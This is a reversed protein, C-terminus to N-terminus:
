RCSASLPLTMDLAKSAEFRLIVQADPINHHQYFELAALSTPFSKAESELPTWSFGDSKLFLHNKCNQILCTM